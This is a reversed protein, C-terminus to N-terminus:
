AHDEDQRCGVADDGGGGPRGRRERMVCSADSPPGARGPDLPNPRPLAQPARLTPIPHLHLPDTPNPSPSLSPPLPLSSTSLSILRPTATVRELVGSRGSPETCGSLLFSLQLCRVERAVTSGFGRYFGRLGQQAWVSRAVHWSGGTRGGAGTQSRQKVVETPVRITCAAQQNIPLSDHHTLPIHQDHLRSGRNSGNCSSLSFPPSVIEGGSASLMHLVPAM